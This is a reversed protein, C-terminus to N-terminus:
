LLSASRNSGGLSLNMVKEKKISVLVLVGLAIAGIWSVKAREIHLKDEETMVDVRQFYWFSAFVAGLVILVLTIIVVINSLQLEMGAM